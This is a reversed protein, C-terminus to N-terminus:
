PLIPRIFSFIIAMMGVWFFITNATKNAYCWNFCVGKQFPFFLRIPKKNMIDLALHSLFGLMFPFMLNKCLCFVGFSTLFMALFSHTFSRHKQFTGVLMLLGLIVLGSVVNFRREPNLFSRVIGSETFWDIFLSVVIIGLVTLRGHLADRCYKNPRVDIDSIIGGAAGGIIATLFGEPTQPNTVLIATAVGISIHTMSMMIKECREYQCVLILKWCRLCGNGQFNTEVLSYRQFGQIRKEGKALRYVPRFVVPYFVDLEDFTEM